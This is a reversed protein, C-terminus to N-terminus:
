LSNVATLIVDVVEECTSAVALEAKFQAVDADTIQAQGESLGSSCENIADEKPFTAIEATSISVGMGQLANWITQQDTADTQDCEAYLQNGAADCVAGINGSGGCASIVAACAMLLM